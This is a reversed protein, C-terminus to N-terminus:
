GLDGILDPVLDLQEVALEVLRSAADLDGSGFHVGPRQDLAASERRLRLNPAKPAETQEATAAEAAGLNRGKPETACGGFRGGAVQGM